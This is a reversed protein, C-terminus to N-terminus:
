HAKINKIHGFTKYIFSSNSSLKIATEYFSIAKFHQDIAAFSRGMNYFPNFDNPNLAISKEFFSIAKQYDKLEYYGYGIDNLANNQQPNISLSKELYKIGLELDKQHLYVNGLVTLAELQNPYKELVMRLIIIADPFQSNECHKLAKRIEQKPNIKKSM